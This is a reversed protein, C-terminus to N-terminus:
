VGAGAATENKLIKEKNQLLSDSVLIKETEEAGLRDVTDGFREGPRGESIYFLIAKEILDMMESKNFLKVLPSGMRVKKGWKGGIFVKFCEDAETKHLRISVIGLDNLDPKVCNNLCGGIAIKFKNPLKVDYYGEYFRKHIETAISLTDSLGYKCTTGKCAVIPRVRMGTGGTQLGAQAIFDRFAAINDYDIGPVEVNLRVTFVIYGNGFKLSAESIIRLQEASLQGNETIIRGSFANTGKNHIFGIDMMSKIQEITLPQKSEM